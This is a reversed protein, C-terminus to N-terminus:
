IGRTECYVYTDQGEKVFKNITDTLFRFIPIFSLYLSDFSYLHIISFNVSFLCFFEGWPNGKM